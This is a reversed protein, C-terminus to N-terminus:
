RTLVMTGTPTNLTIISNNGTGSVTGSYKIGTKPGSTFTFQIESNKYSGSFSYLDSFNLTENGSFTSVKASPYLPNFFYIDNVAASADKWRAGLDPIYSSDAKSCSFFLGAVCLYLCTKLLHNTKM